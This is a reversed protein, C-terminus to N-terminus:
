NRHSWSFLMERIEPVITLSNDKFNQNVANLSIFRNSAIYCQSSLERSRIEADSLKEFKGVPSWKAHDKGIGKECHM